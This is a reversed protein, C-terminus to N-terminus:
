NKISKIQQSIGLISYLRRTFLRTLYRLVHIEICTDCFTEVDIPAKILDMPLRTAVQRRSINSAQSQHIDRWDNDSCVWEFCTWEYAYRNVM